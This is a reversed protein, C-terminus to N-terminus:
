TAAPPQDPPILHALEAPVRSRQGKDILMRVVAAPDVYRHSDPRHPFRRGGEIVGDDIWSHLTRVSIGLLEAAPELRMTGDPHLM